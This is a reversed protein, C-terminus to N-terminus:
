LHGRKKLEDVLARLEEPDNEELADVLSSAVPEPGVGFRSMLDRLREALLGGRSQRPLYRYANKVRRRSVLKKKHLNDFVTQITTYAYDKEGHEQLWDRCDRVTSGPNEWLWALVERQLPGLEATRENRNM